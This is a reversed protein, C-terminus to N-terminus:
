LAKVDKDYAEEMEEVMRRIELKSSSKSSEGGTVVIKSECCSHSPAEKSKDQLPVLKSYPIDVVAKREGSLQITSKM